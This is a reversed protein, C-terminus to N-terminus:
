HYDEAEREEKIKPPSCDPCPTEREENSGCRECGGCMGANSIVVKTDECTFCKVTDLNTTM